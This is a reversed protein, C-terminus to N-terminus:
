PKYKFAAAHRVIDGTLSFFVDEAINTCHDGIRELSRALIILTLPTDIDTAERRPFELVSRAFAGYAVDVDRDAEIVKHPMDADASNLMRITLALINRAAQELDEYGSCSEIAVDASVLYKVRRGIRTAIDAIRELDNNVKITCCIRRLDVAKPQYLALMNVCEREIEVEEHDIAADSRDIREGADVDRDHIAKLAEDVAQAVRMGMRDLRLALKNLNNQLESM